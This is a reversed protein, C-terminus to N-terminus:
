GGEALRIIRPAPGVVPPRPVETWTSFPALAESTLITQLKQPPMPLRSLRVSEVEANQGARLVVRFALDERWDLHIFVQPEVSPPAPAAADDPASTKLRFPLPSPNM